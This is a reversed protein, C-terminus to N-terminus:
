VYRLRCVLAGGQGNGAHERALPFSIRHANRHLRMSDLLSTGYGKFGIYSSIVCKASLQRQYTVPDAIFYNVILCNAASVHQLSRVRVICYRDGHGLASAKPEHM